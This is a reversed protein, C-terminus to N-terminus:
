MGDDGAGEGEEMTQGSDGYADTQVFDEETRLRHLYIWLKQDPDYRVPPDPSAQLRDLAGSVVQNLKHDSSGGKVYQSDKMLHAV